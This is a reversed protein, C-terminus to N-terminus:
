LKQYHRKAKRYLHYKVLYLQNQFLELNQFQVLQFDVSPVGHEAFAKRMLYKNRFKPADALAVSRLGLFDAVASVLFTFDEFRTLVADYNTGEVAAAIQRWDFIDDLVHVTDFLERYEERMESADIILDLIMGKSRATRLQSKKGRYGIFLIRKGTFDMIHLVTSPLM